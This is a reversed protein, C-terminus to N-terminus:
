LPVSAASLLPVIRTKAGLLAVLNERACASPPQSFLLAAPELGAAPAHLATALAHNSGYAGVAFIRRAGAAQACGFLAELPRVKNGGYVVGSLDDRKIYLDARLSSVPTPFLGLSTWPIKGALGPFIQFLAPPSQEDAM